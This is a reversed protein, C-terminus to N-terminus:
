ENKISGDTCSTYRQVSSYGRYDNGNPQIVANALLSFSKSVYAESWM